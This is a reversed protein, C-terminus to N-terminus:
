LCFFVFIAMTKHSPSAIYVCLSLSLSLLLGHFSLVRSSKKEFIYVLPSLFRHRIRAIRDGNIHLCQRQSSLYIITLTKLIKNTKKYSNESSCSVLFPVRNIKTKAKQMRGRAAKNM